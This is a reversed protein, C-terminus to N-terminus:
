QKGKSKMQKSHRKGDKRKLGTKMKVMSTHKKYTIFSCTKNKLGIQQDTDESQLISLM